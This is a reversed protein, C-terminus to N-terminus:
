ANDRGHVGVGVPKAVLNMLQAGLRILGKADVDHEHARKGVLDCLHHNILLTGTTTVPAPLGVLYMFAQPSAPMLTM